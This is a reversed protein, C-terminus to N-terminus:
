VVSEGTGPDPTAATMEQEPHWRPGQASAPRAPTASRRDVEAMGEGVGVARRAGAEGGAQGLGVGSAEAGLSGCSVAMRRRGMDRGAADTATFTLTHSAGVALPGSPPVIRFTRQATLPSAVALTLVVALGIRRMSAERPHFLFLRGGG